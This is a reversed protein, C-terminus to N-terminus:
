GALIFGAADGLPYFQSFFQEPFSEAERALTDRVRNSVRADEALGNIGLLQLLHDTGEQLGAQLVPRANGDVQIALSQAAGNRGTLSLADMQKSGVQG